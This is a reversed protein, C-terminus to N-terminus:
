KESLEDINLIGLNYLEKDRNFDIENQGPISGNKYEISFSQLEKEYEMFYIKKVLEEEIVKYKKSM